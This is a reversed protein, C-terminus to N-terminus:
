CKYKTLDWYYFTTNNNTQVGIYAFILKKQIDSYLFYQPYLHLTITENISYIM